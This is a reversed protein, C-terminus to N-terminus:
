EHKKFLKPIVILVVVLMGCLGGLILLITSLPLYPEGYEETVFTYRRSRLSKDVLKAIVSHGEENPHIDFSNIRTLESNRGEFEAAVDIVRYGCEASNSKIIENLRGIKENSFDTLMQISDFSELPNYVTQIYIDGNTKEAATEAVAKINVEFNALAEDINEELSMLVSAAAFIDINDLDFEGTEWSLGIQEMADFVIGMLDNGGISIVVASSKELAEAFSDTELHAILDSTKDGSVALNYMQHPVDEGLEEGYRRGLINAYSDPCNYNDSDTYGELGYGAAISDGLFTTVVPVETTIETKELDRKTMSCGVSAFLVLAASAAASIRRMM